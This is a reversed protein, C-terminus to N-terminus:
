KQEYSLMNVFETLFTKSFDELTSYELRNIKFRNRLKYKYLVKNLHYEIVFSNLKHRNIYRVSFGLETFFNDNYVRWLVDLIEKYQHKIAIHFSIYGIIYEVIFHFFESFGQKLYQKAMELETSIFDVLEYNDVYKVISFTAIVKYLSKSIMQNNWSLLDLFSSILYENKSVEDLERNWYFNDLKRIYDLLVGEPALLYFIKYITALLIYSIIGKNIEKQNADRGLKESMSIAQKLWLRFFKIKVQVEKEPLQLIHQINIAKLNKYKELLVDDYNDVTISLEKLAEYLINPPVLSVPAGFTIRITDDTLVFKSYKFRYNEQLLIELLEPYISNQYGVVDSFVIIEKDTIKGYVKKSGQYLEFNLVYENKDILINELYPNRLFDLLFYYSNIYDGQVYLEQAKKWKSEDTYNITKEIYKGLEIHLGSRERKSLISSFIRTILGM